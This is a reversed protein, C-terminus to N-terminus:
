SAPVRVLLGTGSPDATLGAYTRFWDATQGVRQRCRQVVPREKSSQCPDVAMMWGYECGTAKPEQGLVTRSVHSGTRVGSRSDMQGWSAGRNRLSCDSHLRCAEHNANPPSACTGTYDLLGCRNPDFLRMEPPNGPGPAPVIFRGPGRLRIQLMHHLMESQLYKGYTLSAEPLAIHGRWTMRVATIGRKRYLEFLPHDVGTAGGHHTALHSAAYCQLLPQSTGTPDHKTGPNRKELDRAAEALAEWGIVLHECVRVYGERGICVRTADTWPQRQAASFYMLPHYTKCGTCYLSKNVLSQIRQFGALGETAARCDHCLKRSAERKLYNAFQPTHGEAEFGRSPRAWPFYSAKNPQPM